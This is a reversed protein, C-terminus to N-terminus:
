YSFKFIFFDNNISDILSVGKCDYEKSLVRYLISADLIKPCCFYVNDKKFINMDMDEPKLNLSKIQEEWMGTYWTCGGWYILNNSQSYLVHSEDFHSSIYINQNDAKTYEFLAKESTYTKNYADYIAYISFHIFFVGIITFCIFYRKSLNISNLFKISSLINIMNMPIISCLLAREIPRGKIYLYIILIWGGFTSFFSALFYFNFVKKTKFLILLPVFSLLISFIFFLKKYLQVNNFKLMIKKYIKIPYYLIKKPTLRKLRAKISMDWEPESCTYVTSNDNKELLSLDINFGDIEMNIFNSPPRYLADVNIMNQSYTDPKVSTIANFFSPNYSKELFCWGLEYKELSFNNSEYLEPNEYFTVRPYDAYRSRSDQWEYFSENRITKKIISNSLNDFLYFSILPLFLLLIYKIMKTKFFMKFNTKIQIFIEAFILAYWFCFVSEATGFRFFYSIFLLIFLIFFNVKKRNLIILALIGTGYIVPCVSWNPMILFYLVYLINFILLIFFLLVIINRSNSNNKLQNNFIKSLFVYNFLASGLITIFIETIFWWPISPLIRFLFCQFFGMIPNAFYFYPYPKGTIAGRFCAQITGDDQSLYPTAFFYTFLFCIPILFSILIKYKKKM